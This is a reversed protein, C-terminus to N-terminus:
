EVTTETQALEHIEHHPYAVESQDDISIPPFYVHKSLGCAERAKITTGYALRGLAELAFAGLLSLM